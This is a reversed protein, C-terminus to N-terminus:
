KLPGEVLYVSDLVAFGAAVGGENTNSAKTRLLYGSHENLIVENGHRIYAAFVGLESVAEQASFKGSRIFYTTHIPPFIRQMLIYAALAEGGDKDKLEILKRRIDEGFLNNGGGERQPKLVFQHPNAIAKEVMELGTEDDLSWLGAFCSRLKCIADTDQMFRELVGPKALEQQIKKTGALHYAITPCKIANTREILRRVNWENESPYDNPSYGARYYVVAVIHGGISFTGDPHFVAESHVQALTRRIVTIGFSDYLTTSLCYQDYMNREEPQVIMLVVASAKGFEKFALALAKAFGNIAKNKPIQKSQLNSRRRIYELLYRHLEVVQSGLGAFSSSITNMEVQLLDGTHMDVMYDSRHLGLCVDQKVEERMVMSHIDLLKATFTDAKSTRWLAEQLFKGDMSVRDVLENFLPAVEIAQKFHKETFPSPLLSIPAHVLGVGPIKGSDEVAKDGIVLGHLSAWALAECVIQEALEQPVIGATEASLDSPFFAPGQFADSGEIAKPSEKRFEM